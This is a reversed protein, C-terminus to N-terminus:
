LTKRQQNPSWFTELSFMKTHPALQIPPGDQCTNNDLIVHPHAMRPVFDSPDWAIELEIPAIENSRILLM